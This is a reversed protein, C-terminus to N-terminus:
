AASHEHRTRPDLAAYLLDVGFNVLVYGVGILAVFAQLAVYERQSIANFILLGMGPITFIVEIIVTGGILTGISIGAVTLLSFSSPRLAHRVLIRWTPLGQSRAMLIYDEQLTAIMDSRLLRMYVAAQALALSLAPMFMSKFHETPSTGFHVYGLVPFWKLKVGLYFIM